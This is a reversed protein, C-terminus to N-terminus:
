VPKEYGRQHKGSRRKRWTITGFYQILTRTKMRSGIEGTGSDFPNGGGCLGCQSPGPFSPMQLPPRTSPMARHTIPLCKRASKTVRSVFPSSPRNNACLAYLHDIRHLIYEIRGWCGNTICEGRTHGFIASLRLVLQERPSTAPVGYSDERM